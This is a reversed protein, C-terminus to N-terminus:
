EIMDAKAYIKEPAKAFYKFMAPCLWGSQETGEIHYWYGGSEAKGRSAVLEHGPFPGTSFTLRFGEKANPIDAVLLNLIEPIGAVFPEKRLDKDADDFVWTDHYYYPKIVILANAEPKKTEAPLEKPLGTDTDIVEVEAQTEKSAEKCSTFIFFTLLIILLSHITM